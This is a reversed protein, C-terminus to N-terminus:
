VGRRDLAPAGVLSAARAGAMGRYLTAYAGISSLGIYQFVLARFLWAVLQLPLVTLGLLPVFGILGLATTALLSAGQAFVVIVLIVLFVATLPGRQRRVFTGV